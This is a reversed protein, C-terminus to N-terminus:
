KGRDGGKKVKKSKYWNVFTFDCKLSNFTLGLLPKLVLFPKAMKLKPILFCDMM